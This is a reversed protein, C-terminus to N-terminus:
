CRLLANQNEAATKGAGIGRQMELLSQRALRVDFDHNHRPLIEYQKRRHEVFDCPAVHFDGIDHLRQPFHQSAGM